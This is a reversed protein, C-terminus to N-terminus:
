ENGSEEGGAAEPEPDLSDSDGAPTKEDQDDFVDGPEDKVAVKETAAAREERPFAKLYDENNFRM